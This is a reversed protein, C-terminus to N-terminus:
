FKHLPELICWKKDQSIENCLFKGNVLGNHKHAYLIMSRALLDFLFWHSTFTVFVGEKFKLAYLWGEVICVHLPVKQHTLEDITDTDFLFNIYNM